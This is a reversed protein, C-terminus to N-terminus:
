RFKTLQHVTVDPKFPKRREYILHYYVQQAVQPAPNMELLRRAFLSASGFNKIKYSLAMASRLSLILHEPKLGSHTFYAALEVIRKADTEVNLEKRSMEM